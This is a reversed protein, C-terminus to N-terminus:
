MGPPMRRVFKEYGQVLTPGKNSYVEGSQQKGQVAVKVTVSNVFKKQAQQVNSVSKALIRPELSSKLEKFKQRRKEQTQLFEEIRLDPPPLTVQFSPHSLLMNRSFNTM